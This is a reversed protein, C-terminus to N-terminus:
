GKVASSRWVKEKGESYDEFAKRLGILVEATTELMAQFRPEKVQDIDNRVLKVLDTLGHQVNSSHRKVDTSEVTSISM